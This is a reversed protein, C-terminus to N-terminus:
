KYLFEKVKPSIWVSGRYDLIAVALDNEKAHMIADERGMLFLTKAWVDAEATSDAIVTVTKLDFSFNELNKPNILHHFKRGDIEWKRKSIGSTALGKESLEFMLKEYPVGDLDIRWRDGDQDFGCLFMDGGSDVSFNEWGRDKLFQSIKDTVYGKVVGSFDMKSVFCIKGNSIKLEDSLPRSKDFFNCDKTLSFDGKKFDSHYGISQLTGIIRPDFYGMTKENFILCKQAVELFEESAESFINLNLNSRSLESEVDFRSFVKEFKEYLVRAQILDDKANQIMDSNEVVVQLEIDTGFAFFKEVVLNENVM